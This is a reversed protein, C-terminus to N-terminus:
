ASPTHYQQKFARPTLGMHKVFLKRVAHPDTYGVQQVIQAWSQASNLLLECCKQMRIKQLYQNPKLGTATVFRRLFTRQSLCCLEALHAVKIPEALHIRIYHQVQLIDRDGHEWLPHFTPAPFPEASATHVVFNQGLQRCIDPGAFQSVLALGLDVWAMLGGATMVDGEHVVAQHLELKVTPYHQLFLPALQTHTTAARQQLLGTAALVFVGACIASLITGTAHHHRLWALLPPPPSLCQEPQMSPPLVVVQYEKQSAWLDHLTLIQIHFPRDHGQLLRNALLFLEELGHVASQSAGSYNILAIHIPNPLM